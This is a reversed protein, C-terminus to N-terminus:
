ISFSQKSVLLSVPPRPGRSALTNSPFQHFTAKRLDTFAKYRLAKKQDQPRFLANIRSEIQVKM